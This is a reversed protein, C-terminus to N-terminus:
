GPGFFSRSPPCCCFARWWDRHEPDLEASNCLTSVSMSSIEPWRWGLLWGTRASDSCSFAGVTLGVGFYLANQAPITGSATGRKKTRHMLQDIDRDVYCNLVNAGGVTTIGGILTVLVLSLPPVGEQAVFMAGLTTVLLLTLIGPKMLEIYERVVTGIPRKETVLEVGAPEEVPAGQLPM